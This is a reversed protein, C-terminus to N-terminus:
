GTRRRRDLVAQEAEHDDGVGADADDLLQAGLLGQVGQRDDALGPGADPAVPDGGLDGGGLDHEAVDDLEPGAVLDDDVALHQLGVAQLDVLRQQGALGVRDELCGPSWTIDPLKTTAPPPANVAVLTPRSAYAAWSASSALRKVRTWESSRLPMLWIRLYTVQIIIGVAIPRIM